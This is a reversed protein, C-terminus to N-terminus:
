PIPAGGVGLDLKWVKGGYLQTAYLSTEPFDGGRGFALSAVSFMGDAVKEYAGTSTDIRWITSGMNAAVYLRGKEDLVGGDPASLAPLEALLV